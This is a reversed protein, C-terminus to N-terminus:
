CLSSVHNPPLISKPMNHFAALGTSSSKIEIQTSFLASVPRHDSFKSESRIYQLQKVGKGYWLIRDCRGIYNLVGITKVTNKM